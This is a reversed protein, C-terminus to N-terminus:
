WQEEQADRWFVPKPSEARAKEDTTCSSFIITCLVCESDVKIM